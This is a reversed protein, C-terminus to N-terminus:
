PLRFGGVAQDLVVSLRALEGAAQATQGSSASTEKSVGAIQEIDKNIEESTASMQETASAIQQVMLQLDNVSNVINNLSNGGQTSLEVGAEVKKTAVEMADIASNVGEQISHIMSGIESTANATREALKRVEDAVVAFGRGAEGARAAEIAANLALLNTQDAIENIVNVIEGIQSSQNGLTKVFASTEDVTEAIKKVEKVSGIVIDQGAKAVQVTKAASEAIKGTNRAIDLITQSMEESSAAVQSAKEMQANFGTSMLKASSSLQNGASSIDLAVTKVHGILKRWQDILAKIEVMDKGLEDKRNIQVDITLDGSSLLHHVKNLRAIPAKLSRSLVFSITLGAGVWVLTSVSILFWKMGGASASEKGAGGSAFVIVIALIATIVMFSLFGGTLRTGININKLQM